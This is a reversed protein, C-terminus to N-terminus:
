GAIVRRWSHSLAGRKFFFYTRAECQRTKGKEIRAKGAQEFENGKTENGSEILLRGISEGVWKGVV